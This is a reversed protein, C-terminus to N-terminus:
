KSESLDSVMKAIEAGFKIAEAEKGPLAQGKRVFVVAM